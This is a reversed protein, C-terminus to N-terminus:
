QMNLDSDQQSIFGSRRMKIGAPMQLVEKNEELKINGRHLKFVLVEFFERCRCKEM